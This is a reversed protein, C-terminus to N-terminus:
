QGEEETNEMALGSSHAGVMQVQSSFLSVLDPDNLIELLRLPLSLVSPEYTKPDKGDLLALVTKVSEKHSKIAIKIARTNNKHQICAALEKDSMIETAPDILDALLDLAADGRVESLKM